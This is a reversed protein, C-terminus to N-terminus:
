LALLTFLLVFGVAYTAAAILAAVGCSKQFDNMM